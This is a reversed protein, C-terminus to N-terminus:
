IIVECEALYQGYLALMRQYSHIQAPNEEAFYLGMVQDFLRIYLGITKGLPRSDYIEGAGAVILTRRFRGAEIEYRLQGRPVKGALCTRELQVWLEFLGSLRELLAGSQSRSVVRFEGTYTDDQVSLDVTYRVTPNYKYNIVSKVALLNGSSEPQIQLGERARVVDSVADFIEAIRMQPTLMSLHQALIQNVLNSRSTGHHYALRDIARVIDDMLILSYMSKRM